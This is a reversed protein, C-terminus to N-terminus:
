KGTWVRGHCKGGDGDNIAKQEEGVSHNLRVRVTGNGVVAGEFRKKVRGRKGMM